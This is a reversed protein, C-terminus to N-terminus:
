LKSFEDFIGHRGAGKSFKAAGQIAEQALVKRGETFEYSLAEDFSNAEYASYYCSRRDTNLCL